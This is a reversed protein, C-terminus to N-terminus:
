DSRAMRVSLVGRLSYYRLSSDILVTLCRPVAHLITRAGLIYQFPVSHREDLVPSGALWDHGGLGADDDAGEYYEINDHSSPADECGAVLPSCSPATHRNFRRWTSKM